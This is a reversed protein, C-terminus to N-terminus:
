NWSELEDYDEQLRRLACSNLVSQNINTWSKGIRESVKVLQLQEPDVKLVRISSPWLDQPTTEREMTVRNFWERSHTQWPYALISRQRSTSSARSSSRALQHGQVLRWEWSSIRAGLRWTKSTLCISYCTKTEKFWVSHISRGTSSSSTEIGRSVSLFLQFPRNNSRDSSPKM